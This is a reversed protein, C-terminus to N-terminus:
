CDSASEDRRLTTTGAQPLRGHEYLRERGRHNTVRHRRGFLWRSLSYWADDCRVRGVSGQCCPVVEPSQRATRPVSRAARSTSTLSDQILSVPPNRNDACPHVSDRAPGPAARHTRHPWAATCRFSRRPGPRIWRMLSPSRHHPEDEQCERTGLSGRVEADLSRGPEKSAVMALMTPLSGSVRRGSRPRTPRPYGQRM